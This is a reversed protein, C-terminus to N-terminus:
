EEFYEQIQKETVAMPNAKYEKYWGLTMQLAKESDWKPKWDLETMAKAIDLRLLMAEHPANPDVNEKFSGSGWIKLSKEILERVRLNDEQMPGFNFATAYKEPEDHLHAGLLLYGSLPELVHQWPRISDPNRVTLTQNSSLARILDPIIRDKAWDGGGIVNGARATAVAKRHYIYSSSPFFSRRYSATVIEAAAKSSSYPDFGGLPEKEHYADWTERNEYVKDTTVVIVSCQKDLRRVAELLYTTGMVNIEFTEIPKDFSTRVISQAALHFVFDPQFSHMEKILKEKNRIDAIVSNCMKDGNLLTYLNPEEEPDLAYGKVEAGLYKLIALLWSGKFGTHGTVFVKKGSYTQKLKAIMEVDEM